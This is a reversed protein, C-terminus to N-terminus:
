KGLGRFVGLLVPLIALMISCTILFWINNSALDNFMDKVFILSQGASNFFGLISNTGSSVESDFDDQSGSIIESEEREISDIGSAISSDPQPYNPAPKEEPILVPPAASFDQRFEPFSWPSEIVRVWYQKLFIFTYFGHLDTYDSFTYTSLGTVNDGSKVAFPVALGSPTAFNVNKTNANWLFQNGGSDEPPRFSFSFQYKSNPQLGSVQFRVAVTVYANSTLSQSLEGNYSYYGPTEQSPLVSINYLNCETVGSTGNWNIRDVPPVTAYGYAANTSIVNFHVGSTEFGGYSNNWSASVPFCFSVLLVSIISFFSVIFRFAKRGFCYVTRNFVYRVFSKIFNM